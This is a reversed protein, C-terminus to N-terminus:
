APNRTIFDRIGDILLGVQQAVYEGYKGHAAKNRLDLWATVNKQDLGTLVSAKVLESNMADAKKARTQGKADVFTVPILNKICLQRLHEELTSGAIVASADKFGEELLHQAMELYDAFLSAHLLESFSATFDRSLDDRFARLIGVLNQLVYGLHGTNDHHLAAQQDYVSSKGAVKQLVARIRTICALKDDETANGGSYDEEEAKQRLDTCAKLVDDVHALALKKLDPM